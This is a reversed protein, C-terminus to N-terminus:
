GMSIAESGITFRQWCAVPSDRPTSEHSGQHSNFFMKREHDNQTQLLAVTRHYWVRHVPLILVRQSTQVLRARGAGKAIPMLM